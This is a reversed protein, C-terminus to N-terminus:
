KKRSRKVAKNQPEVAKNIPEVAKNKPEAMKVGVPEAGEPIDDEAFWRTIGNVKYLKM